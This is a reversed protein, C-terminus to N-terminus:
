RGTRENGITHRNPSADADDIESQADRVARLRDDNM